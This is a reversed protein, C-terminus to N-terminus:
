SRDDRRACPVLSRLAVLIESICTVEADPALNVVDDGVFRLLLDCSIDILGM